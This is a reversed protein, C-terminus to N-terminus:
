YIVTPSGRVPHRIFGWLWNEDDPLFVEGERAEARVQFHLLLSKTMDTMNTDRPFIEIRM